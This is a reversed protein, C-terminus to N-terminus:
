FDVTKKTGGKGEKQTTKSPLFRAGWKLHSFGIRGKNWGGERLWNKQRTEEGKRKKSNIHIRHRKTASDRGTNSDSRERGKDREALVVKGRRKHM